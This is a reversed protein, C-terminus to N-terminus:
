NACETKHQGGGVLLFLQSPSNIDKKDMDMDFLELKRQHVLNDNKTEKIAARSHYRIPM